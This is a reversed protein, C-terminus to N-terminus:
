QYGTKGSLFVVILRMMSVLDIRNHEIIGSIGAASGSRVFDHYIDPIRAGPVDGIRRKGLVYTELTGLKHNPTNKGVITRSIPLLDVHQGPEEFDMGFMAMREIMFPIDFSRGNFTVLASFRKMFEEAFGLLFREESYDRAFFQDIFLRNDEIYMLGALFLPSNSLGTTELDFFCVEEPPIEFLPGFHGNRAIGTSQSSGLSRLYESLLLESEQDRSSVPDLLRLFEGGGAKEVKGRLIKELEIREGRIERSKLRGARERLRKLLASESGKGGPGEAASNFGSGDKKRSPAATEGDSDGGLLESARRLFGEAPPKIGRTRFEEEAKRRLEELEKRIDRGKNEPNM